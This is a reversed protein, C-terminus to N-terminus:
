TRGLVALNGAIVGWGVWCQFGTKGHNLCRGLGHARKLVSIRGEIGAHWHRGKVFWPKHEYKLRAKSRYGRKPIVVYRVGLDHALKENPDSSLGRDASAQVPPHQFTKIHAKLSPKWQKEDSPNGDLVRYHSVIGGEVENLWIKHGYEVAKAEKGRCIIDTHEEFISVIKEAAPVQEGQMIRRTTQQIVQRARPIFTNLTEALRKAKQQSQKQLQKQTQVAWDITQETMGLLKEYQQRGAVQAAEKKSRLTEGIKRALGKATKTFDEFESLVKQKAAKLITQGGALSRALVRVSDALLRGDSPPRIHSEVVTGDTRMKRGGTVKREIALQVIRQNFKELTKPQILNAWRILTTDDPVTNLYVRCFQRLRLSDSVQRETEEYSYGYLRKVVLMRLIVEVPTSNRGTQTTKPSRHSLDQKILRYLKEDELYNEIKELESSLNPVYGLIEEFLKDLPYHERLM